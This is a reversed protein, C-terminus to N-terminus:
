KKTRLLTIPGQLVEGNHEIVYYYTGDPLESGNYMGDWDNSYNNTEYLKTGWRNFIQVLSGQVESVNGIYWIDNNGDGNPTLMNSIYFEETNCGSNDITVDVTTSTNGCPAAGTLTYTYTVAADVAPNFVGTGSAMAPSWVGGADASGIL